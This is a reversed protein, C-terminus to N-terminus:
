MLKLWRDGINAIQLKDRVQYANRSLKDSLEKKEVVSVMANSLAEVDGVPILMGNEGDTIMERAGGVPCDTSITPLGMGLAEIMSNSIGEYDSSCVYMACDHMKGHIDETFGPLFVSNQLEMDRIMKELKKREEGEGYIELRYDPYKKIFASFAKIMMELNKQATLRSASIIVKRREGSYPEPLDPNCPNPIVVGKKQVKLPFHKKADETQFVCIDAMCFAYDRMIRQIARKPWRSPDNRESFILKNKVFLSSIALIYFSRSLFALACANKHKKLLRVVYRIERFYWQFRNRRDFHLNILRVRKDLTYNCSNKNYDTQVVMVKHGCRVWEDALETLVREAGDNGLSTTIIIIEKKEIKEM